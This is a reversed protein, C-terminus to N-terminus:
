RSIVAPSLRELVELLFPEYSRMVFRALAPNASKTLLLAHFHDPGLLRILLHAKELFILLDETGGLTGSGGLLEVAALHSRVVAAYSALPPAFAPDSARECLSHGDSLRVIGSALVGEIEGALEDTLKELDEMATDGAHAVPGSATRSYTARLTKWTLIEDIAARGHSEDTDAQVILGDQLMLAGVRGATAVTIMGSEQKKELLSLLDQLHVGSLLGEARCTEQQRWRAIKLLWSTDLRVNAPLDRVASAPLWDFELRQWSLIQKFAALGQIDGCSAHVLAGDAVVLRSMSGNRGAQFGGDRGSLAGLLCLDAIDFDGDLEQLPPSPSEVDRAILLRHSM